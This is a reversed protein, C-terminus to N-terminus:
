PASHHTSVASQQTERELPKAFVVILAQVFLAGVMDLMVDRPSGTRSPVFTQHFEDLSAAALTLALALASWRFSWSAPGPLTARWSHFALWSLIGYVSFHATKRILFHLTDFSQVSIGPWVAHVVSWLIRGTHEPSFASTSFWGIASLWLITFLWALVKRRFAGSVPRRIASTLL